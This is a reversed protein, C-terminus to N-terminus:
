MPVETLMELVMVVMEERPYLCTLLAPNRPKHLSRLMRECSLEQHHTHDSNFYRVRVILPMFGGFLSYLVYISYLLYLMFIKMETCLCTRIQLSLSLLVHMTDIKINKSFIGAHLQQGFHQTIQYKASYNQLICDWHQFLLQSTLHLPLCLWEIAVHM